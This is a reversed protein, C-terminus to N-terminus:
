AELLKQNESRASKIWKHEGPLNPNITIYVEKNWDVTKDDKDAGEVKIAVVQDKLSFEKESFVGKGFNTQSVFLFHNDSLSFNEIKEKELM